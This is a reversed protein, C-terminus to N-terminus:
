LTAVETRLSKEDSRVTNFAHKWALPRNARGVAALRGYDAAIKKLTATLRSAIATKSEYAAIKGAAAAFAKQVTTADRVQSAPTTENLLRTLTTARTHALANLITGLKADAAGTRAAKAQAAAARRAAAQQQAKTPGHHPAAGPTAVLVGVVAAIIMAGVITVALLRRRV